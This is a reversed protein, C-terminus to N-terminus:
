RKQLPIKQGDSIIMETFMVEDFQSKSDREKLNLRRKWYIWLQNQITTEATLIVIRRETFTIKM